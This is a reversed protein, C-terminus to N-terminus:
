SARHELRLLDNLEKVPAFTAAPTEVFYTIWHAMAGNWLGPLELAKLEKGDKSKSSIFGTEPDVYRSLDFSCGQYDRIGCVLNVPNFHTARELIAAQTRNKMDVQSKEVIQRTVNGSSDSVWFPGGGPEGSNEVMGCVRIPRNLFNRLVRRRNEDSTEPPMEFGFDKRVFLLLEKMLAEDRIGSDLWEIAKFIKEQKELLFGALMKQTKVVLTKRADPQINDINKIFVIDPEFGQLNDLLAGHGAPRFVLMGKEDRFFRNESDVAITDTSPKQNSFSIRLKAGSSELSPGFAALADRFYAEHEASVTLHMKIIGKEDAAYLLAERVHEEFSTRAREKPYRHFLLLGKPLESYGLGSKMLLAELIPIPRRASLVEEPNIGSSSMSKELAEWFAFSKIQLLTKLVDKEDQSLGDECVPLSKETQSKDRYYIALPAKFMRTAAGSAPVFVSFRGKRRAEEIDADWAHLAEPTLREIGDGLTCPRVLRMFPFGKKFADLQASVAKESLGHAAIQRLDSDQLM